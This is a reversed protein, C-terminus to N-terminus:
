DLLGAMTGSLVARARDAKELGAKYVRFAQDQEGRYELNLGLDILRDLWSEQLLLLNELETHYEEM